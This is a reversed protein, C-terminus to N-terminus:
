RFIFYSNPCYSSQQIVNTDESQIIISFFCPEGVVAGGSREGGEGGGWVRGETGRLALRDQEGPPLPVEQLDAASSTLM